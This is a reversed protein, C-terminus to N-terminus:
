QFLLCCTEGACVTPQWRRKRAGASEEQRYIKELHQDGLRRQDVKKKKQRWSTDVWNRPPSPTLLYTLTVECVVPAITNCVSCHMLMCYMYMISDVFLGHHGALNNELTPLSPIQLVSTGWCPGPAAGRHPDPAFGGSASMKEFHHTFVEDVSTLLLCKCCFCKEVNGPPPALAGRTWAQRRGRFVCV